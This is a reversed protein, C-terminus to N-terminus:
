ILDFLLFVFCEETVHSILGIMPPTVFFELCTSLWKTLMHTVLEPSGPPKRKVSYDNEFFLDIKSDRM